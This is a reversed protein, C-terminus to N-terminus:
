RSLGLTVTVRSGAGPRSAISLRADALKARERMGLLGLGASPRAASPGATDFGRGDDLITARVQEGFHLRVRVTTADAHRETNHLAEQVIRFLTLEDRQGLRRPEGTTRLQATVGTRAELDGVLWDIAHVLGLDDLLSPRLDRSFRRVDDIAASLIADVEKVQARVGVPVPEEAGLADLKAKAIVLAQITDDHLERALRKREEEQADTALRLYDQLATQAESLESLMSRTQRFYRINALAVGLQNGVAELLTRDDPSVADVSSALGVAGVVRDSARLPVVALRDERLAGDPSGGNRGLRPEAIVSRTAALERAGVEAPMAATSASTISEPETGDGTLVVWGTQSRGPDLMAQLTQSLVSDLDLSQASAAATLNLRELRANAAEAREKAATEFDVRRAIVYAIAILLALQFVVGPREAATHWLILNPVTLLASWLATPVAGEVGFNLAAYVVPIFYTSVPLLALDPLVGVHRTAELLTHAVSIAIVLAQVVWFRPDRLRLRFQRVFGHVHRAAAARGAATLSGAVRVHATETV